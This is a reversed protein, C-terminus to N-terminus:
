NQQPGYTQRAEALSRPYHKKDNYTFNQENIETAGIVEKWIKEGSDGMQSLKDILHHRYPRIELGVGLHFMASLNSSALAPRESKKQAETLNAIEKDIIENSIPRIRIDKVQENSLKLSKQLKERLASKYIADIDPKLYTTSVFYDDNETVTEIVDRTPYKKAVEDADVFLYGDIDSRERATGKVMSGFMTLALVEPSEQKIERMANKIGQIREQNFSEPSLHFRKESLDPERATPVFSESDSEKM